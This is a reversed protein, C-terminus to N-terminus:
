LFLVYYVITSRPWTYPQDHVCKSVCVCVCVSIHLATPLIMDTTFNQVLDHTITAYPTIYLGTPLAPYPGITTGNDNIKHSHSKFFASPPCVSSLFVSSM